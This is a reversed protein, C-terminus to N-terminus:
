CNLMDVISKKRFIRTLASIDNIQNHSFVLLTLSTLRSLASLDITRNLRSANIFRLNLETLNTLGSLASLDNIQNDNLNLTTLNVAAELGTLDTINSDTAVLTTLNALDSSTLEATPIGLTNRIAAKLNSDPIEVTQAHTATNLILLINIIFAIRYSFISLYPHKTPMIIM